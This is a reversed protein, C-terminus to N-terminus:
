GGMKKLAAAIGADVSPLLACLRKLQDAREYQAYQVHQLPANQMGGASDKATAWIAQPFHSDWAFRAVIHWHLHPVMNGLSALNSKADGLGAAALGQLLAAELTCLAESCLLREAPSLQSFERVHHGWILRYYAPFLAALPDTRVRIVRFQPQSFLLLDSNPGSDVTCCLPCPPPKAASPESPPAGLDPGPKATPM